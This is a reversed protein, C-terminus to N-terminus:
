QQQDPPLTSFLKQGTSALTVAKANGNPTGDNSRSGEDM